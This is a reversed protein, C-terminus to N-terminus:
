FIKEQRYLRIIIIIMQVSPTFFNSSCSFNQSIQHSVRSFRFGKDSGSPNIGCKATYPSYGPLNPPFWLFRMSDTPWVHSQRVNLGSPTTLHSCGLCLTVDGLQLIKVRRLVDELGYTCHLCPTCMPSATYMNSRGDNRFMKWNRNKKYLKVSRVPLNKRCVFQCVSLSDFVSYVCLCVCVSFCVSVCFCVCLCVCVCLSLCFCLSICVCPCTYM